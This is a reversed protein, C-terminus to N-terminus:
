AGRKPVKKKTSEEAEIVEEKIEVKIKKSHVEKQYKRKPVKKRRL